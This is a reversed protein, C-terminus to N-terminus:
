HNCWFGAHQDFWNVRKLLLLSDLAAQDLHHRRGNENVGLNNSLEEEDNGPM